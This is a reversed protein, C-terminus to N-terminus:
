PNLERTSGAPESAAAAPGGSDKGGTFAGVRRLARFLVFAVAFPLLLMVGLLAIRAPGGPQQSACMPCAQALRPLLLSALALAATRRALAGTGFVRRGSM